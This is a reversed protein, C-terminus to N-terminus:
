VKPQNTNDDQQEIKNEKDETQEQNVLPSTAEPLLPPLASKKKKRYRQINYIALCITEGWFMCFTVFKQHTEYKFGLSITSQQLKNAITNISGTILMIGM